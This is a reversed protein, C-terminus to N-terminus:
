GNLRHLREACTVAYASGSECVGILVDHTGGAHEAAVNGFGIWRSDGRLVRHEISDLTCGFDRGKGHPRTGARPGCVLENNGSSIFCLAQSSDAVSLSLGTPAHKTPCPWRALVKWTRTDITYVVRDATATCLLSGDFAAALAQVPAQYGGPQM